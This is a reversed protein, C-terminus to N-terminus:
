LQMIIIVYIYIVVDNNHDSDNLVNTSLTPSSLSIYPKQFIHKFVFMIFILACFGVVVGTISTLISYRLEFLGLAEM